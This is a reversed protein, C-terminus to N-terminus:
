LSNLKDQHAEQAATFGLHDYIRRSEDDVLISQATNLVKLFEKNGGQHPCKKLQRQGQPLINRVTYM